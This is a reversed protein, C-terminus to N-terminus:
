LADDGAFSRRPVGAGYDTAGSGGCGAISDDGTGPRREPGAWGTGCGRCAPEAKTRAYTRGSGSCIGDIWRWWEEFYGPIGPFTRAGRKVIRPQGAKLV